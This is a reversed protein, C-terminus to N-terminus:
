KGKQHSTLRGTFKYAGLLKLRFNTLTSRRPNDNSYVSSGGFAAFYM